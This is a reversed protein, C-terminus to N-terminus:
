QSIEVISPVEVLGSKKFQLIITVRGESLDPLESFMLHKEGKKMETAGELPIKIEHVMKMKGDDFDHLMCKAPAYGKVSCGTLIDGGTGSNRIVMFASARGPIMPSPILRVDEVQIQPKGGTDCSFVAAALLTIAFFM